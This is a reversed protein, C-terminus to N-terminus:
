RRDSNIQFSRARPGPAARGFDVPREKSYDNESAFVYPVRTEQRARSSAGFFTRRVQTRDFFAFPLPFPGTNPDRPRGQGAEPATSPTDRFFFVDYFIESVKLVWTRQM